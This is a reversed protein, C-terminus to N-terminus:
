SKLTNKKVNIGSMTKSTYHMWAGKNICNFAAVGIKAENTLESPDVNWLKLKELNCKFLESINIAIMLISLLLINKKIILFFNFLYVMNDYFLFLKDIKDKNERVLLSLYKITAIAVEPCYMDIGHWEWVRM